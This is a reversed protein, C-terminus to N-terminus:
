KTLVVGFHWPPLDLAPDATLGAAAAWIQIQPHRPRAPVAPGRPTPIDPRWHMVLVRGGRGIVRAAEAVLSQPEPFHLINFLLCADCSGSPLGFGDAVVDRLEPKVNELQAERIRRSTRDLMAQDIDFTFVTGTIRRAVPLTFTGYGCGLEALNGVAGDIDLRELVLPVDFLSEWYNEEPIGSDPVKV